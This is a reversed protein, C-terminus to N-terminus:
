ICDFKGALICIRHWFINCQQISCVINRLAKMYVQRRQWMRVVQHRCMVCPDTVVFGSTPMLGHETRFVIDKKQWTKGTRLGACLFAPYKVVAAEMRPIIM